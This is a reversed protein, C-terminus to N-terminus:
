LQRSRMGHHAGQLSIKPARQDTAGVGVLRALWGHGTQPASKLGGRSASALGVTQGVLSRCHALTSSMALSM